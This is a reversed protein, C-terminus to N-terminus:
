IPLKVQCSCHECVYIAWAHGDVTMATVPKSTIEAHCKGCEIDEHLTELLPSLGHESPKPKAEPEPPQALTTISGATGTITEGPIQQTISAKNDNRCLYWSAWLFALLAGSASCKLIIGCVLDISGIVDNM